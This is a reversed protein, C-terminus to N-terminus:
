YKLTFTSDFINNLQTKVKLISARHKAIEVQIRRMHEKKSMFPPPKAKGTLWETYEKSYGDDKFGNM